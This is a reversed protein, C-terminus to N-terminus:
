RREEGERLGSHAAPSGDAGPAEPKGGDAASDLERM